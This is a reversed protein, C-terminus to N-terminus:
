DEVMLWVDCAWRGVHAHRMDYVQVRYRFQNGHEDTRRSTKFNLDLARVNESPLTRLESPESIGNHNDDQWLRLSSFVADRSDIQGDRNGGNVQKDFEALSIFGNPNDSQPQPSYNGFLENGNDITGNGNRDLVLFADDLGISTWAIREPNGDINLDFNVGGQASTLSFGNGQVDIIIPSEGCCGICIVGPSEDSKRLYPNRCDSPWPPPCDELDYETCTYTQGLIVCERSRAITEACRGGPESSGLLEFTQGIGCNCAYTAERLYSCYFGPYVLCCSGSVCTETTSDRASGFPNLDHSNQFRQIKSNTLRPHTLDTSAKIEGKAQVYSNNINRSSRVPLYPSGSLGNYGTNDGFRVQSFLLYLLKLNTKTLGRKIDFAELNTEPLRFLHSEGPQLAADDPRLENDFDSLEARGYQLPFGVPHGDDSFVEPTLITLAIRYMPKKSTNTVEVELHRLVPELDLNKLEVQIPLHSPIRIEIVRETMASTDPRQFNSGLRKYGVVKVQWPPLKTEQRSLEQAISSTFELGLLLSLTLAVVTLLLSYRNVYSKM